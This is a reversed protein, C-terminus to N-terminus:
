QQSAYRLLSHHSRDGKEEIGKITAGTGRVTETTSARASGRIQLLFYRLFLICSCVKQPITGPNRPIKTKTNKGCLSHDGLVCLYSKGGVWDRSSGGFKNMNIHRKKAQFFALSPKRNQM